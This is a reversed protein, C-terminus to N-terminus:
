AVFDRPPSTSTEENLIVVGYCVDVNGDMPPHGGFVRLRCAFTESSPQNAWESGSRVRAGPLSAGPESIRLSHDPSLSETGIPRLECDFPHSCLLKAFRM